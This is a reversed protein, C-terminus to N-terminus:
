RLGASSFGQCPPGGAIVDAAPLDIDDSICEERVHPALNLRYTQVAPKSSDIASVLEFGAQRLGLSLGGAACFLDVCTPTFQFLLFLEDTDGSPKRKKRGM